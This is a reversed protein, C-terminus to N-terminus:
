RVIIHFPVEKDDKMVFVIRKTGKKGTVVTSVEVWRVTKDDPDPKSSLVNGEFVIKQVSDFNDGQFKVFVSDGENLFLPELPTKIKAPPAAPPPLTLPLSVPQAKGQKILIQKVDKIQEKTPSLTIVTATDDETNLSLGECKPQQKCNAAFVTEGVHVRVEDKKFGRGAIALQTKEGNSGLTVVATAGFSDPVSITTEKEGQNWLFEKVILKKSDFLLQAPAVFTLQAFPQGSESAEVFSTAIFPADSLGFVKGGIVVVPKHKEFLKKIKLDGKTAVLRVTVELTQADRTRFTPAQLDLDKYPETVV